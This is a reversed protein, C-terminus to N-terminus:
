EVKKRSYLDRALKERPVKTLAEIQLIRKRPVRKWKQISQPTIKLLRALSSLGGVAKLAQRVGMPYKRHM